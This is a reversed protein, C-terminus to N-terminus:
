LLESRRKVQAQKLGKCALRMVSVTGMMGRGLLRNCPVGLTQNLAHSGSPGSMHRCTRKLGRCALRMVSVRRILGRGPLGSCPVWPEISHMFKEFGQGTSAPSNGGGWALLMVSVRGIMGRGLLESCPVGLIQNLTFSKGSRYPGIVVVPAVPDTLSNLLAIGEAQVALQSNGPVPLVLPVSCHRLLPSPPLPLTAPSPSPLPVASTTTAAKHSTHLSRSTPCPHFPSDRAACPHGWPLHLMRKPVSPIPPPLASRILNSVLQWGACSGVVVKSILQEM